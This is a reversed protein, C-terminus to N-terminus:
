ASKKVYKTLIVIQQGNVKGEIHEPNSEVLTIGRVATGRKATFGGGKVDLDKILVVTDGAQLVAGNSDKHIVADGAADEEPTASKAWALMDDDLYLQDLLDQPWGENRLQYLLRWALVQVAPITSWMSSNLCRWHNPDAKEPNQIQELCTGCVLAHHDTGPTVPLVEYIQLKKENGCLECVSGARERLQQEINM